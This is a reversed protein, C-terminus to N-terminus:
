FLLRRDEPNAAQLFAFIEHLLERKGETADPAKHVAAHLLRVFRNSIRLPEKGALASLINPLNIVHIALQWRRFEATAEELLLRFREKDESFAVCQFDACQSYAVIADEIAGCMSERARHLAVTDLPHKDWIQSCEQGLDKVRKMTERYKTSYAHLQILRDAKLKKVEERLKTITLCDKIWVLIGGIGIGLVLPWCKEVATQVFENM